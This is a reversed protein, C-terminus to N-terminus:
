EILQLSTLRPMYLKPKAAATKGDRVEVFVAGVQLTSGDFMRQHGPFKENAVSVASKRASDAPSAVYVVVGSKEKSYGGAQSGWKVQQAVSFNSM